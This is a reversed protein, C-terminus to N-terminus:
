HAFKLIRTQEALSNRKSIRFNISFVGFLFTPLKAMNLVTLHCMKLFSLIENQPNELIVFLTMLRSFSDLYTSKQLSAPFFRQKGAMM